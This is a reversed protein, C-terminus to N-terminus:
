LEWTVLIIPIQPIYFIGLFDWFTWEKRQQLPPRSISSQTTPILCVPIPLIKMIAHKICQLPQSWRHQNTPIAAPFDAVTWLQGRQTANYMIFTFVLLTAYGDSSILPSRNSPSSPESSFDESHLHNQPPQNYCLSWHFAGIYRSSNSPSRCTDDNQM